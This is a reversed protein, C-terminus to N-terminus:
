TGATAAKKGAKKIIVENEYKIGSGHYPEPPRQKKIEAAVQGVLEKDIGSVIIRDKEVRLEIGSPATVKRPENFGLDLELDGGKVLARYGVGQFTLVKEFGTSVGRVMNNILSRFLGWFVFSVKDTAKQNLGVSIRGDELKVLIRSDIERSLEGKPGRIKISSDGLKVEVGNPIEITKKGIRSMICKHTLNACTTKAPTRFFCGTGAEGFKLM